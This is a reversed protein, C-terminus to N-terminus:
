KRKKFGLYRRLMGPIGSAQVAAKNVGADDSVGFCPLRFLDSNRSVWGPDITRCTKYGAQQVWERVRRDYSGGPLAFHDVNTGAIQALLVRSENCERYGVEDSCKDLLPHYMTHSGITCGSEVLRRVQVQSLVTPTSYETTDEHNFKKKLMKRREQDPLSKLWKMKEGHHPLLDFWLKRNTNILGAVCFIAAPIRYKKFLDILEENGIYGDDFTIVLPNAPLESFDNLSVAKVVDDMGIFSYKGSFYELHKELTQRSPNHYNIITIKHRAHLKRIFFPIGSFRICFYFIDPLKSM